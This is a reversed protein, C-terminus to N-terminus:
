ATRLITQLINSMQRYRSFDEKAALYEHFASSRERMRSQALAMYAACQQLAERLQYEELANFEEATLTNLDFDM